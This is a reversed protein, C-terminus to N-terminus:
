NVASVTNQVTVQQAHGWTGDHVISVTPGIAYIGDEDSYDGPDTVKVAMDIRLLYTHAGTIVPGVAEIRLFKTAGSSLLDLWDSGAANAETLMEVTAEPETSEVLGTYSDQAADLFWAPNFRGKLGYKASIMEGLKVGTGTIGGLDAFVDAVYVSFHRPLVPVLNAAATLAATMTQDRLMKRGIIEGGQKIEKRSIELDLGTWRCFVMVEANLTGTPDGKEVTFSYPSDAGESLPSFVHKYAGTALLTTVPATLVSSLPIIIEDYTPQGDVKASAWEMNAATVTPYKMGQPRFTSVDAEPKPTIGMSSMKRTAAHQTGPTTERGTQTVQTGSARTM